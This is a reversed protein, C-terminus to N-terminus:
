WDSNEPLRPAPVGPFEGCAIAANSVFRSAAATSCPACVQVIILLNITYILMCHVCVCVDCTSSVCVVGRAVNTMMAMAVRRNIQRCNFRLAVNACVCVRHSRAHGCGGRADARSCQSAASPLLPTPANREASKKGNMACAFHGGVSHVESCRLRARRGLARARTSLRLPLPAAHLPSSLSM